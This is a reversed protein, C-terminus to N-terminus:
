EVLLQVAGMLGSEAAGHIPAFGDYNFRDVEAGAKLLLRVAEGNYKGQKKYAPLKTVALHLATDRVGNREDVSAGYKLLLRIIAIDYKEVALHIPYAEFIDVENASVVTELLLEAIDKRGSEMALIL